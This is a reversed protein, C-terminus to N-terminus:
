SIGTPLFVNTIALRFSKRQHCKVAGMCTGFRNSYFFCRCIFCTFSRAFARIKWDAFTLGLAWVPSLQPIRRDALTLLSMLIAFSAVGLTLINLASTVLFTREFIELSFAKLSKQDIISNNDIGIQNIIESQLEVPNNTRIGFRAPYSQPYLNRFLEENIIIKGKLTEM